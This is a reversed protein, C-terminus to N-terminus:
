ASPPGSGRAPADLLGKCIDEIDAMGVLEADDVVPLHRVHGAIMSRAADRITTTTQIVTPSTTMLDTIRVDNVDDGDAIAQVVDADTIVGVPRKSQDGDVVVLCTAHAHKMLYAAAALHANPEVTTLAPGMVDAATVLSHPPQPSPQRAANRAM